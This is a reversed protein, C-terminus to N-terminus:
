NITPKRSLEFKALFEEQKDKPFPELNRPDVLWVFNNDNEEPIIPLGEKNLAAVIVYYRMLYPDSKKEPLMKSGIVFVDQGKSLGSNKMKKSSIITVFQMPEIFM